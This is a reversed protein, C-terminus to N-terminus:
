RRSVALGLVIGVAVTIGLAMWTHAHVCNDMERALEKSRDWVRDKMDM